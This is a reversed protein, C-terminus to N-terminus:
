LGTLRKREESTMMSFNSINGRMERLNTLDTGTVRWHKPSIDNTLTDYAKYFAELAELAQEKKKKFM